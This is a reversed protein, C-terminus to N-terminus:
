LTTSLALNVFLAVSFESYNPPTAGDYMRIYFRDAETARPIEFTSVVARMVLDPDTGPGFSFDRRRVEFGGGSPATVGTTVTVATASVATVALGTVNALYTPSVAAPLWADAPVARSTRISLDNAWDNSFTLAYEVVDPMSAGYKLVAERVVVQVNLGLTASELLLADGPWVDTPGTTETGGLGLGANLAV